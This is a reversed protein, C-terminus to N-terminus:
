KLIWALLGALTVNLAASIWFRRRWRVMERYPTYCLPMM